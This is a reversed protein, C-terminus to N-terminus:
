KPPCRSSLFYMKQTMIRSHAFIKLLEENKINKALSETTKRQVPLVINFGNVSVQGKKVFM